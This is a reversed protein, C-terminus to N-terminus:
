NRTPPQPTKRPFFGFPVPALPTSAMVEAAAKDSILFNHRFAVDMPGSLGNGFMSRKWAGTRGDFCDVSDGSYSAVFLDGHPSFRIMEPGLCNSAFTGMWQGTKSNFKMVSDDFFSAVYLAGDPGFDLGTAWDLFGLVVPGILTGSQANFQFVNDNVHSSVYMSGQRWRIGEAGGPQTTFRDIFAGTLGNYRFVGGGYSSVVYLNGDPGFGLDMPGQLGGSQEDVFVGLFQGSRGDYKLVRNNLVFSSVYLNGDPGFTLGTPGNLGGSGAPVFVGLPDGNRANFKLVTDNDFSSVYVVNVAAAWNVFVAMGIGILSFVKYRM